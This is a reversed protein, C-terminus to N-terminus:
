LNQELIVKHVEQVESEPVLIEVCYDQKCKCIERTKVLFGEEQIATKVKFATEEDTAMYIVTWM